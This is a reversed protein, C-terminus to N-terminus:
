NKTGDKKIIYIKFFLASIDLIIPGVILGIIGFIKLGGLVGLLIIVPHIKSRSGIIAPRLFTDIVSLIIGIVAIGFAQTISGQVFKVISFPVWVITPGIFPIFALFAIVLAWLLPSSLGLIKFGVGAIILEIVALILLGYVVDYIGDGIKKLFLDKDPLPIMERINKLYIDPKLLFYFTVFLFILFDLIKSPITFIVRSAGVGIKSIVDKITGSAYENLALDPGLYKLILDNLGEFSNAQYISISEKVIANAVFFLPITVVLIILLTIFAAAVYKNIKSSLRKQLPHFIYTAILGALIANIFPKIIIFSIAALIIATIIIFYKKFKEKEMDKIIRM